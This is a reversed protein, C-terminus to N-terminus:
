PAGALVKGNCQTTQWNACSWVRVSKVYLHQQQGSTCQGGYNWWDCANQLILFERQSAETASLGGPLSHCTIFQGDIYSCGSVDTGDSTIRMAYTHYISGDFGGPLGPPGHGLWLFAGSGGNGWNHVASDFNNQNGFDSEIVDWEIGSLSQAAIGEPAWTYLALYTGNTLPTMRATFEYYSNIPFSVATGRGSQGSAPSVFDWSATQIVTGQATHTNDVTWPMDLVLGGFTPDARQATDCPQYNYSWWLNLWWTHGTDDSNFNGVPTGSGAVACGGLWNAPLQKTFDSNLALTTFGAVQAAAPATPGAGAPVVQVSLDASPDAGYTLNPALLAAMFFLKRIM